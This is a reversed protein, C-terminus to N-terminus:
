TTPSLIAQDTKVAKHRQRRQFYPRPLRNGLDGPSLEAPRKAAM